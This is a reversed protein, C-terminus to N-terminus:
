PCPSFREFLCGRLVKAAAQVTYFNISDADSLLIIANSKKCSDPVPFLSCPVPFLSYPVPFLVEYFRVKTLPTNKIGTVLYISQSEVLIGM